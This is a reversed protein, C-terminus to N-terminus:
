EPVTIEAATLRGAKHPANKISFAGGFKGGRADDIIIFM